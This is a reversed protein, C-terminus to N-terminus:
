QHASLYRATSILQEIEYAVIVGGASHGFLSVKSYSYSKSHLTSILDRVWTMGATYCEFGPYTSGTKIAVVDFGNNYLESVRAQEDSSATDYSKTYVNYTEPCRSDLMAGGCLVVIVQTRGTGKWLYFTTNQVIFTKPTPLAQVQDASAILITTM